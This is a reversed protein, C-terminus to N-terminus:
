NKLFVCAYWSLGLLLVFLSDRSAICETALFRQYWRDEALVRNPRAPRILLFRCHQFETDRLLEHYQVTLNFDLNPYFSRERDVVTDVSYPYHIDSNLSFSLRALPILCKLFGVYM